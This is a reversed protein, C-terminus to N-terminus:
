RGAREREYHDDHIEESSGDNIEIDDQIDIGYVPPEFPSSMNTQDNDLGYTPPDFPSPQYTEM